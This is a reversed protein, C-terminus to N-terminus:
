VPRAARPERWRSGFRSRDIPSRWAGVLRAWRSSVSPSCCTAEIAGFVGQQPVLLVYGTLAVMAGVTNIALVAYATKAAYVGVNVLSCMENMAAVLALWPLYPVAGRYATPMMADIFIPAAGRAIAVGVGLLVVGLSVMRASVELGDPGDLVTIRRAYWWLGFPQMALPVLLSLKAALGYFGLDSPEVTAALFWRDCSGLVFMSLAGGVLPLGYSAARAFTARDLRVGTERAQLGVLAGAVCLDIVANAALMGNVGYGLSLVVIAFAVQAISRSAAFVVFRGPRNTFRMWAIPLEILGSFTATALGFALPTAISQLGLHPAIFWVGGQLAVGALVAYLLASGTLGAAIRRREDDAECSAFRFLSDALGFSLVIGAIEVFSSVLELRGYDSPSLFRAVVPISILSLGKTLLVSVGFLWFTRMGSLMKLM